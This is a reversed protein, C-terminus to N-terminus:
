SFHSKIYIMNSFTAISFALSRLGLYESLQSSSISLKGGRGGGLGTLKHIKWENWPSALSDRRARAINIEFFMFLTMDKHTLTTCLEEEYFV